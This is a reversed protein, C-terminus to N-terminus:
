AATLSDAPVLLAEEFVSEPARARIQRGPSRKM